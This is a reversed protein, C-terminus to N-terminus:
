FLHHYPIGYFDECLLLVWKWALSGVTFDPILHGRRLRFCLVEGKHTRTRTRTLKSCLHLSPPFPPPIFSPSSPAPLLHMNPFLIKLNSICLEGRGSLTVKGLDSKNEVGFKRIQLIAHCMRAIPSCYPLEILCYIPVAQCTWVSAM